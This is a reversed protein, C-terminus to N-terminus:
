AKKCTFYFYEDDELMVGIFGHECALREFQHDSPIPERTNVIGMKRRHTLLGERTRSHAIVFLGGPKLNMYANQFIGDFDEFHPISNYILILDYSRELKIPLEWDLLHTEANPHNERLVELMNEAIDAAAYLGAKLGQQNMTELVIGTGAGIDLMMTDETIPLRAVLKPITALSEATHTWNAARENFHKTDEIKRMDNTM